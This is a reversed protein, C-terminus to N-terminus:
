KVVKYLNVVMKITFLSTYIANEADYLSYKWLNIVQYEIDYM